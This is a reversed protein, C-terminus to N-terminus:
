KQQHALYSLLLEPLHSEWMVNSFLLKLSIQVAGGGFFISFNVDDRNSKEGTIGM